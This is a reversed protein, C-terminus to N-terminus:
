RGLKRPRAPNWVAKDELLSIIQKKPIGEQILYKKYLKSGVRLCFPCDLCVLYLDDFTKKVITKDRSDVAKRYKPRHVVEEGEEFLQGKRDLYKEAEQRNM